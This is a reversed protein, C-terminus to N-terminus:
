CRFSLIHTKSGTWGQGLLESIQATIPKRWCRGSSRSDCSQRQAPCALLRTFPVHKHEITGLTVQMDQPLTLVSMCFMNCVVGSSITWHATNGQRIHYSLSYYDELAIVPIGTSNRMISLLHIGSLSTLTYNYLTGGQGSLNAMIARAAAHAGERVLRASDSYCNLLKGIVHIM